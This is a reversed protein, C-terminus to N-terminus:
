AEAVAPAAFRRSLRGSGWVYASALAILLVTILVISLAVKGGSHLDTDLFGYPYRSRTGDPRLYGPHSVAARVMTYILWAIPWLLFWMARWGMALRPGILLFGLVAMIPSVYHFLVNFVAAAGTLHVTPAIVFGYVLGTVTIGTLAAVRLLQTGLGNAGPSRVALLSMALVLVNSQVTFYSFYNLVSNHQHLTLYLQGILAVLIVAALAGYWWRVRARFDM